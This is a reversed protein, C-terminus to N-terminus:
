STNCLHWKLVVTMTPDLPIMEPVHGGGGGGGKQVLSPRPGILFYIHVHLIGGKPSSNPSIDYFFFYSIISFVLFFLKKKLHVIKSGEWRKTKPVM